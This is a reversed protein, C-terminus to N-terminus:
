PETFPFVGFDGDHSLVEDLISGYDVYIEQPQAPDPEPSLVPTAM